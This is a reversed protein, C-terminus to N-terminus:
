KTSSAPYFNTEYNPLVRLEKLTDAYAVTFDSYYLPIQPLKQWLYDQLEAYVQERAAPDVITKGEAILQDITPDGDAWSNPTGYIGAAADPDGGSSWSIHYLLGTGADGHADDVLGSVDTPVLKPDLGIEQLNAVIAEGVQEARPLFGSAVWLEFSLGEAGAQQVLTRAEELNQEYSPDGAAYFLTESPLFSEAVVSEGQVLNEVLATRDIALMVARRLEPSEDWLPVRGPISWLNVQESATASVLTFGDAEEITAHQEAPVRDIADAQGALLANVRTQADGVYEWVLEDIEPPGAWYDENAAMTKKTETQETLAFPGTGNPEAALREAGEAIDAAAVVPTQRIANFLSAFPTALVLRVQHDDIVEVTTPVWRAALVTETGAVGSALEVSAKVDAATFPTGDHFTVDERLTLEWTTDDVQSWETALGAEPQDLEGSPFQLLTDYIHTNLRAQSQATSQYPTWDAWFNEAILFRVSNDGDGGQEGAGDEGPVDNASCAAALLVGALATVIASRRRM